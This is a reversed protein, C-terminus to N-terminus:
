KFVMSNEFKLTIEATIQRANHVFNITPIILFSDECNFIINIVKPTM